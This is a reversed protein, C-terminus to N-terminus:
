DGGKMTAAVSEYRDTLTKLEVPSLEADGIAASITSLEASDTVDDLRDLLIDAVSDGAQEAEPQVEPDPDRQTIAAISSPRVVADIPEGGAPNFDSQQDVALARTAATDDIVCWGRGVAYHIATKMMMEVPWNTWPSYSRARENKWSDSMARRPEIVAKPVFGTFTVRGTALEKVIVAVGRCDEYSTPPRDIDRHLIVVEGSDTVDIGDRDSIPVALVTQGCRRALANIGRHSLNYQLQPKEGRRARRPIAYALATAGTAPMIGTLASVAIVTGVSEPTCEYFDSPDRASAASAALAASIRGTAEKARDEGVWATLLSGAIQNAQRRFNAADSPKKKSVETTTM